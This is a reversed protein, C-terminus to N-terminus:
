LHHYAIQNPQHNGSPHTCLSVKSKGGGEQVPKAKRHYHCSDFSILVHVSQAQKLCPIVSPVLPLCFGLVQCPSPQPSHNNSYPSLYRPFWVHGPVWVHKSFVHTSTLNGGRASRHAKHFCSILAFFHSLYGPKTSFSRELESSFPLSLVIYKKKRARPM